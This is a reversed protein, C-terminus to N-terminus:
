GCGGALVKICGSVNWRIRVCEYGNLCKLVWEVGVGFVGVGWSRLVGRFTGVYDLM